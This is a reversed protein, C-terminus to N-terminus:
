RKQEQVSTQHAQSCEQTIGATLPLHRGIMTRYLLAGILAGVIPAFLPILFYPMVKGGTLAIHGWGALEAFIKPGFDRAPNLAFGTLPGFAAGIAAVSLGILLPALPGRPIGNGDDTLAMIVGMLVATIVMEIFFAQALSLRPDPYTSFIGAMPLSDITGRIIHHTQEYDIFLNQYLAYVLAVSCFAGATQACIYPVLKRAEFNGFVCLAISVAPNLHAGSVGASVYAGMTVALGWVISIEWQGFNANALKLAAVCGVGFFLILGTGIFEAICQGILLHHTKSM